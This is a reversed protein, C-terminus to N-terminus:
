PRQSAGHSPFQTAPKQPIAPFQSSPFSQRLCPASRPVITSFTRPPNEVIRQLEGALKHLIQIFGKYPSIAFANRLGINDSLKHSHPVLQSLPSPRFGLGGGKEVWEAGMIGM